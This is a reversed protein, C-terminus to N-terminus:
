ALNRQLRLEPAAWERRFLIASQAIFGLTAIALTMMLLLLTYEQGVAAAVSAM